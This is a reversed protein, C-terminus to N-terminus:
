IEPHLTPNKRVKKETQWHEMGLHFFSEKSSRGSFFKGLSREYTFRLWKEGYVDEVEVKGTSRNLYQINGM